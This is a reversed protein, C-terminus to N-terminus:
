VKVIARKEESTLKVKKKAPEISSPDVVEEIELEKESL